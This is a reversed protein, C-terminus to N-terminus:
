TPQGAPAVAQVQPWGRRWVLWALVIESLVLGAVVGANSDQRASVCALPVAVACAAWSYRFMLRYGLPTSLMGVMGCTRVFLVLFYLGWLPFLTEVGAFKGHLFRTNLQPFALWVCLSYVAAMGLFFMMSLRARAGIESFHGAAFMEAIRPRFANSWATVVLGLPMLLMRAAGLEAVRETGNASAVIFSYASSYVWTVLVSPLAWKGCEWLEDWLRWRSHAGLGDGASARRRGLTAGLLTVSGILVLALEGNMAGASTGAWLGGIVGFAILSDTRLAVYPQKRVYCLTRSFERALTGAAFALGGLLYYLGVGPALGIANVAAFVLAGLALLVAVAMWQIGAALGAMRDLETVPRRPAVTMIPSTIVANQVSQMLLTANLFLVYMGYDPKSTVRMLLVGTLFSVASIVAQDALAAGGSSLLRRM